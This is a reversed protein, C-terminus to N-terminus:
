LVHYEQCMLTLPAAPLRRDGEAHEVAYVLSMRLQHALGVLQRSQIIQFAHNVRKRGMRHRCIRRVPHRWLQFGARFFDARDGLQPNVRRHKARKVPRIGRLRRFFEHLRKHARQMRFVHDDTEIIREAFHARALRRIHATKAFLVAKLRVNHVLHLDATQRNGRRAHTGGHRLSVHLFGGPQQAARVGDAAHNLPAFLQPAPEIERRRVQKPGLFLRNRRFANVRRAGIDIFRPINRRHVDACM